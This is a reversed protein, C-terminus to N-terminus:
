GNAGVKDKNLARDFAEGSNLVVVNRYDMV